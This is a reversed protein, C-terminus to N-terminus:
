LFYKLFYELQFWTLGSHRKPEYYFATISNMIYNYFTIWTCTEEKERLEFVKQLFSWLIHVFHMILGTTCFHLANPLLLVISNPAILVTNASSNIGVQLAICLLWHFSRIVTFLNILLLVFMCERKKKWNWSFISIVFKIITIHM